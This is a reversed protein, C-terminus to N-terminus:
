DNLDITAGGIVSVLVDTFTLAQASNLNIGATAADSTADFVFRVGDLNGINGGTSKISVELTSVSPSAATGAKVSGTVTATVNSVENGARDLAIVKPTMNLPITNTATFSLRVENFNYKDLDDVDWDDATDLYHLFMNAGFALPIVAEYDTTFEYKPALELTVSEAVVKADIRGFRMFDPIRKILNPLDPVVVNEAGAESVPKASVIILTSGGGRLTVPTTGYETGIGVLAYPMSPDTNSYSALEASLNISVPSSNSVTVYFRPNDVDLNNAEDSLFDPIDNIDFQSDAISIDPNVIGTVATIVAKGLTVETSLVVKEPTGVAASSTSTLRIDGGSVVQSNLFFRGPAYLGEGDPVNRLNVKVVKVDVGVYGGVTTAMDRIFRVTHGDAVEVDGASGAAPVVTWNPDFAIEYGALIAASGTFGTSSTVSLSLHVDLDLTVEDLTVLDTTINDAQLKVDNVTTPVTIDISGAGPNPFQQIDDSIMISGSNNDVTVNGIQFDSTTQDGTQVLVYDGANLGYEGQQAERISSGEDLNLITTLQIPALTSAPLTLKEGGVSVTLDIDDALDYDHDVCSTVLLASMAVVSMGAAFGPFFKKM